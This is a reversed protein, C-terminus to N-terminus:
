AAGTLNSAMVLVKRVLVVSEEVEKRCTDLKVQNKTVVILSSREVRYLTLTTKDNRLSFALHVDDKAAMLEAALDMVRSHHALVSIKDVDQTSYLINNGQGTTLLALVVGKQSALHDLVPRVSHRIIEAIEGQFGAYADESSVKHELETAYRNTFTRLIENAILKAFDAGDSYDFVAVIKAAHNQTVAVGVTALEIYSVSLGTREITFDLMATIIAGFTSAQVTSKVFEKSFLTTGGASVVILTRLM